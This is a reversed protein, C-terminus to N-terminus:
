SHIILQILNETPSKISWLEHHGYKAMMDSLYNQGIMERLIRYNSEALLRQITKPDKILAGIMHFDLYKTEGYLTKWDQKLIM